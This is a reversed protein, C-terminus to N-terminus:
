TKWIGPACAKRNILAPRLIAWLAIFGDRAEFASEGLYRVMCFDNVWTVALKKEKAIQAVQQRLVETLSEQSIGPSNHTNSKNNTSFDFPGAMFFGSCTKARMGAQHHFWSSKKPSFQLRDIFLPLDNKEVRYHQTISGDNFPKNGAPLGLCTIEWGIYQSHEQLIVTTNLEADAGDYVITEMPFWEVSTNKEINILVNQTQLSDVERARYIRAAGPTTILTNAGQKAEITIDLTDGSVVGGPPHLLYCHALDRGEPYFPKQVYLPGKHRCRSLQTGRQSHSFQLALTAPWQGLPKQRTSTNM